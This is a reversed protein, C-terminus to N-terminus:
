NQLIGQSTPGVTFMLFRKNNRAPNQLHNSSILEIWSAFLIFFTVCSFFVSNILILLNKGITHFTRQSYM